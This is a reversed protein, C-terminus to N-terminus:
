LGQYDHSMRVFRWGVVGGFKEFVKYMTLANDV